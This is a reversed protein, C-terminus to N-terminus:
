WEGISALFFTEQSYFEGMLEDMRDIDGRHTKIAEEAIILDRLCIASYNMDNALILDIASKPHSM